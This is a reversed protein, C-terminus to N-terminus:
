VKWYLKFRHLIHFVIWFLLLYGFAYLISNMMPSLSTVHISQVIYTKLPIAKGNINIKILILSRSVLGSLSFALLANKGFPNFCFSDIFHIKPISSLAEFLWLLIISIGAQVVVFSASWISKNWPIYSNLIMGLIGLGLGALFFKSERISHVGIKATLYGCLGTVISPITSLIGEPDWTKTYKWNHNKLYIEDIYNIWNKGVEPTYPISSDWGPVPIYFYIYTYIFLTWIGISILIWTSSILSLLSVGLYVLAIRQLVGMWRITDWEFDPFGNLFIGLGFLVLFRLVIHLWLDQNMGRSKQSLYISFGVIFLFSPFVIDAGLLGNWEAHKLIPFISGWSGPNNVVLMLAVTWGRYHDLAQIRFQHNM